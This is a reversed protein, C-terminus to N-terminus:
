PTPVHWDYAAGHTVYRASGDALNVVYIDTYDTLPAPPYQEVRCNALVRTGDPSLRVLKWWLTTGGDVPACPQTIQRLGTGDTNIAYIEYLPKDGLDRTTGTLFVRSGDTSILAQGYSALHVVNDPDVLPVTQGTLMNRACWTVSYFDTPVPCSGTNESFYAVSYVVEHGDYSVDGTGNQTPPRLASQVLTAAGTATDILYLDAVGNPDQGKVKALVAYVLLRSGDGSWRVGQLAKYKWRTACWLLHNGTGDPHMLRVCAHHSSPRDDAANTYAIENTGAPGWTVGGHSPGDRPAKLDDSGSFLPKTLQGLSNMIFFKGRFKTTGYLPYDSSAKLFLSYRGSPSFANVLWAETYIPIYSLAPVNYVYHAYPTLQREGFGDDHISFLVLGTVTEEGAYLGMVERVFLITGPSAQAETHPAQAEAPLPQATFAATFLCALALFVRHRSPVQM